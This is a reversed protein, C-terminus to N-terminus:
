TKLAEVIIRVLIRKLLASTKPNDGHRSGNNLALTEHYKTNDSSDMLLAVTSTRISNSHLFFYESINDNTEDYMISHDFLGNNLTTRLIV